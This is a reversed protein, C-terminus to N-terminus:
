KQGPEYIETQPFLAAWAFWFTHIVQAAAPARLIRVTHTTPDVAFELFDGGIRDRIAAQGAQELVDVPYARVVGAYRVGIIRAKNRLRADRPVDQFRADLADTAAYARHPDLHYPYDSGTPLDVVTSDPHSGRWAGFTTLEWGDLQRLTRGAHPGSIATSTLQSWLAQDTRDYLLMNSQYILCSVGFEYTKGDLRRDVVTVSDCLSCYTIALDTKGLHDNIVEHGNLVPIPYARSVGDVTVGVVRSSPDWLAGAVPSAPPNTLAKIGDKPQHGRLITARPVTLHELNFVSEIPPLVPDPNRKARLAPPPAPVAAARNPQAPESGVSLVLGVTVALGLGSLALVVAWSPLRQAPAIGSTEM